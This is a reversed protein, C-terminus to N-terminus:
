AAQQDGFEDVAGEFVYGARDPRIPALRPLAARAAILAANGADIANELSTSIPERSSFADFCFDLAETRIWDSGIM